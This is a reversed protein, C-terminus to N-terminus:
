RVTSTLLAFLASLLIATPLTTVWAALVQRIVPWHAEGSVAGIGFLAGCAVHTTSVPLGLPSAATVLAATVLSAAFGQGHNLVTIGHALTHAVRRAALLGGAAMAVAVLGIGDHVGLAGAGVLLALIKPTDNLGRAFGVAGGTLVHLGDLASQARVGLLTGGYRRECREPRDVSVEPGGGLPVVQGRATLAALPARRGVCLCDEHTVGLTLRAQRLAAYLGATLAAGLLPGALLPLAFARGLTAFAVHSPGAVVMGAGVLAGTLAHTTSVPFGLRTAALVTASAGAAVALLFAPDAVVADAVLGKGTFRSV